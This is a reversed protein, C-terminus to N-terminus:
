NGKKSTRTSIKKWITVLPSIFRDYCMKKNKQMYSVVSLILLLSFFGIHIFDKEYIACILLFIEGITIWGLAKRM